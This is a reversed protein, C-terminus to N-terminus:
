SGMCFGATCVDNSTGPDGDDCPTNDAANPYSCIGTWSDCTGAEHCADPTSCVVGLCRDVGACIGGTCVDNSTSPNMDDCPTGDGVTPNSCSGTWPDCTGVLHCTDIAACVVGLCQNVGACVGGACVDSTTSADGDDCPTGDTANPYSCAGTGHDTCTGPGHCQDPAACTVGLCHDIGGCIGGTCVDGATSANGDDCSTNDAKHPNSCAGTAHDCTGVAHCQDAASCVVGLCLDVGACVGGTCVDGITNANGDDCSTNDTRNAYSCAGTAHSSCFGPEHCQDPAACTVGVCHDEGVCTGAICADGTTDANGDDCPTGDTRSAYSCAGTAHSSCFGPEHCQDPAACTVGECHDTGVCTGALCADGITDANGDDCTTGDGANTFGCRGGTCVALKCPATPAPCTAADTCEPDTKSSAGGGSCGGAALAAVWVGLVVGLIRRTSM